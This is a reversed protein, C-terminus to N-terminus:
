RTLAEPKLKGVRLLHQIVQALSTADDLANHARLEKCELGFHAALNHSKLETITDLAVGAALLLSAANGFSTAPIPPSIGAVYCSIAM